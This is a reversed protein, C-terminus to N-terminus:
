SGDQIIGFSGFSEGLVNLADHLEVFKSGARFTVPAHKDRPFTGEKGNVLLTVEQTDEDVERTNTVEYWEGNPALVFSGAPVQRWPKREDDGTPVNPRLHEELAEIHALLRRETELPRPGFARDHDRAEPYWSRAEMVITHLLETLEASM